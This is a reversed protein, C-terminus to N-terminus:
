QNRGVVIDRTVKHVRQEREALRQLAKVLDPKDAQETETLEAYRQTRKNVRLQLARIMKLEAIQDVLPPEQPDGPQMPQQPRQKNKELDKQAQQLTGIIEELAAIVDAETTQTLEGVKLQALRVVIEEMDDRLNGVAEPLAVASGEERLIALARDAEAVNEAQKRSLRGAEVENDRDREALPVKDLRKTGDYIDNEIDLMKRFRTELQALTRTLEEERLQRLIRELEAIAQHLNELADQQKEVAEDRKAQDLKEKAEKMRQQAQQLRKQTPSQDDRPQDQPPTQQDDSDQDDQQQQGGQRPQGQGKMPRSKNPKSKQNGDSPEGQQDSPSKQGDPPMDGPKQDGSKPDGPKANEGPQKDGPKENKDGPKKDGPKDAGQPKDGNSQDGDPKKQDGPQQNGDSNQEGPKSQQGDKAKQADGEAPKKDGPQSPDGDASGDPKKKGAGKDLDDAIEGTKKALDQQEQSLENQDGQGATGGQVAKQEKIIKNVRKIYERIKEKESEIRQGRDESLLLDLIQQLDDQLDSQGKVAPALRDQKLLDVLKDFQGDVARDKSRAVAQRLLAARRPDSGATLEAMRLMVKELDQYRKAVNEQETTLEVAKTPAPPPAVKETEGAPAAPEDATAHQVSLLLASFLAPLLCLLVLRASSGASSRAHRM